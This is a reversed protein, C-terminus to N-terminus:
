GAVAGRIWRVALLQLEPDHQVTRHHGGPVVVLRSGAAAEHLRRSHEVPVQEDGEAHLLLLPVTLAAAAAVEDTEALVADLAAGDAAFSFRGAALGRRLGDSSAACIAVVADAAAPEAAVLALWGGLSSGRLAVPVSPCRDRLLDAMEAVDELVGGDMEGRSAGHGRADFTLAALRHARCVRAFDFHSEKRSGAGHLLVVGAEIDDEPVFLAYALGGHVGTEEPPEIEIARTRAPVGM